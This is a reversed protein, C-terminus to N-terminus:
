FDAGREQFLAWIKHSFKHASFNIISSHPPTKLQMFFRYKGSSDKLDASIEAVGGYPLFHLGAIQISCPHGFVIYQSQNFM